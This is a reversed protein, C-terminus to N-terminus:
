TKFGISNRSKNKVEKGNILIQLIEQKSQRPKAKEGSVHWMNLEMTPLLAPFFFIREIIKSCGNQWLLAM